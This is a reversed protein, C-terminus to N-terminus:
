KLQWWIKQFGHYNPESVLINRKKDTTVLKIDRHKRVNEMPKGFVTNNMFKFFDKEFDNKAKKRLETNIEIYPKLWSQQDFQLVKHVNKLKLDHMLAQKLVRIYVVNCVFKSYKNIKMREPLFPLDSLLDHLEKAYEIDVKFFYGIDSNEDYNKIFDEDIRSIDSVWKFDGAPLNQEM